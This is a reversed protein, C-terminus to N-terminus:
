SPLSISRTAAMGPIHSLVIVMPDAPLDNETISQPSVPHGNVVTFGGTSKYKSTGDDQRPLLYSCYCGVLQQLQLFWTLLLNNGLIRTVRYLKM